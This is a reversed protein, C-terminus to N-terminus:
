FSIRMGFQFQRPYQNDALSTIRGFNSEGVTLEPPGYNMVNFLNFAEARFELRITESLLFQKALALDTSYVAESRLSNRGVNGYSFQPIGFAEPNVWREATRKSPNPNGILNPRLYDDDRGVNALDGPIQPNWPQGSRIAQILDLRWNGLVRSLLGRQLWSKGKGFPLEWIASVWFNHPVDYAAVSRNSHVDFPNQIASDGAPGNESGFWGSSGNDITKSWTYNMLLMTGGSFRRDLHFQLANYSGRGSDTGYGYAAYPMYPFPRRQDVQEATGPGPTLATNIAYSRDTRRNVSGVYALSALLNATFEHQFELHYQASYPTKKRPDFNVATDFWPFDDPLPDNRGAVVTEVPALPEGLDNLERGFFAVGPWRGQINNSQQNIGAFVDYTVGAGARLVTRSALQWALGLRPGFNNRDPVRINPRDALRIHEGGPISALTGDGPICPAVGTTICPPPLVGGGILFDGTRLDFTSPAPQFYKTPNEFEYRLGFNLTLKPTVKWEDQGYFSWTYWRHGFQEFLGDFEAPLGLVASALGIGSLVGGSQTPDSTQDPGFFTFQFPNSGGWFQRLGLWGFKLQHNGKLWSFDQSIQIQDQITLSFPDGPIGSPGMGEIEMVVQGFRPATSWGLQTLEETSFPKEPRLIWPATTFAARTNLTTTPTFIQNWGLVAQQRRRQGTEGNRLSIPDLDNVRFDNYRAFLTSKSGMQHDIRIQFGNADNRGSRNNIVNDYGLSANPSDFFARISNVIMPSLRNAPIVNNPFPERILQEPNNPDVGTTAPDYIRQEWDSFDGALEKDLPVRYLEQRAQRYRWGDYSFFFFTKDRGDYLNPIYVPGGLTAGFQNQRFKAPGEFRGTREDLVVDTFPNRANFVENRLFEFVSGHVQNTGSKTVLNVNGGMVLGYESKDNHSQVKFEQVADLSPLVSYGNTLNETNIVGDMLYLNSRNWQGNVAPKIWTSGPLAATAGWEQASNVPSVGPTLLLLQTFNRGNLPLSKIAEEQIVTGLESTSAQLLPAEAKVDMIQTIEGVALAIDQTMSQNVNVEFAPVRATKFGSLEAKLTYSGPQVNIFTYFGRANSVTSSEIGTAQNTLTLTVGAVVAGTSDTVTGNIAGTASQGYALVAPMLLLSLFSVMIKGTRTM